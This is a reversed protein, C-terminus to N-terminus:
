IEINRIDVYGRSSQSIKYSKSSQHTNRDNEEKSLNPLANEYETKIDAFDVMPIIVVGEWDAYKGSKDVDIHDPIYQRLPSDLSTLINQLAPPILSASEPPLVCLLQEFPTVPSTKVPSPFMASLTSRKLSSVCPSYHYPYYWNWSKVGNLYYSLTWKLGTLYQLSPSVDSDGFHALTYRDRYMNIDISYLGTNLNIRSCEELILDQYYKGKQSIKENLYKEEKNELIEFFQALSYKNYDALNNEDRTVMHGNRKCAKKYIKIIKDIGNNVIEVSQILPLFDNGCIFCIFVFDNIALQPIFTSYEETRFPLKRKDPQTSCRHQGPVRQTKSSLDWNMMHSLEPRIDRINILTYDSDTSYMDDRLIYMNQNQCGLSLMIIDADMGQVCNIDSSSVKTRIYQFIKSEGEGPVKESSFVVELHNWRYDNKVRNFIFREIYRTMRDMFETGATISNIDFKISESLTKSNESITPSKASSVRDSSAKFRRQRQQKMKSKPAIGDVCLVLRKRPNVMCLISEVLECVKEFVKEQPPPLREIIPRLMRPNTAYSGYKYVMQTAKHFLGNMDLLLNHIETDVSDSRPIKRIHKSFKQSFWKFFNAIGM